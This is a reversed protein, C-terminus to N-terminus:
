RFHVAVENWFKEYNDSRESPTQGMTFDPVCIEDFGLDKYQGVADVLQTTTGVVSRDAPVVARLKEASADDNVIFFLPQVSKRVTSFDRSEKECAARLNAIVGGAVEPTGWTNWEQAFRATLRLMRAGGTGVLIPLPSQVPKPECPANTITFHAGNFTTRDQSLMSAVIEIAEAFRDVRDKAGFLEIGFAKHENVQWGAGMGLVFRGNSIQDITAARNAILAPHNVTTPTVLSGLRIKSTTAALASLVSFCEHFNGGIPEGDPTNPMYHDAYWFGDWGMNEVSQVFNRVENWPHASNAWASFYM